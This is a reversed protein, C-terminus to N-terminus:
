EWEDGDNIQFPYEKRRKVLELRTELMHGVMQKKFLMSNLKKM